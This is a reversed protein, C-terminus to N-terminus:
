KGSWQTLQRGWTFPTSKKWYEEGTSDDVVSRSIKEMEAVHWMVIPVMYTVLSNNFVRLAEESRYIISQGGWQNDQNLNQKGVM